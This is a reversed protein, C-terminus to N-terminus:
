TDMLCILIMLDFNDVWTKFSTTTGVRVSLAWGGTAESMFVHVCSLNGIIRSTIRVLWLPVTVKQAITGIVVKSWGPKILRLILILVPILIKILILVSHVLTKLVLPIEMGTVILSKLVLVLSIKVTILTMTIKILTIIELLTIKLLSVIKMTMIILILPIKLVVM